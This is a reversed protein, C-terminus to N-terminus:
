LSTGKWVALAPGAGVPGLCPLARPIDPARAWAGGQPSSSQTQAAARPPVTHAQLNPGRKQSPAERYWQGMAKALEVM